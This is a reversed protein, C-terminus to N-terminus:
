KRRLVKNAEKISPSMWEFWDNTYNRAYYLTNEYRSNLNKYEKIIDHTKWEKTWGLEGSLYSDKNEVFKIVKDNLYDPVDNTTLVKMYQSYKRIEEDNSFLVEGYIIPLWRDLNYTIEKFFDCGEEPLAISKAADFRFGQVGLSIYENLMKIIKEQVLKNNPNLGPLGMCYNTVQFRSYWDTLQIREKWCDPNTLIEHDVEPHPMLSGTNNASALHNVVTDAVVYVGYENAVECLKQLDEKSGIRNGIEFNLPQYLNWWYESGEKKTPQLPSIQVVDFGQEKIIPIVNTIDKLPCDFLSLIRM